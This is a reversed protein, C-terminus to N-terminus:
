FRGGLGLAGGGPLLVFRPGVGTLGVKSPPATSSALYDRWGSELPGDSFAHELGAATMAAGALGLGIFAPEFSITPEKSDRVLTLADIATVAGGLVVFTWGVVRRVLHERRARRAWEQEVDRRVRAPELEGHSAEISFSRLADYAGPYGFYLSGMTLPFGAIFLADALTGHHTAEAALMGGIALVGAGEAAWWAVRWGTEAGAREDLVRRLHGLMVGEEDGGAPGSADAPEGASSASRAARLADALDSAEDRALNGALFAVARVVAADGEPLQITRTVPPADRPRYTMVLAHEARDISVVFAGLARAAAPDGAAVATADLERGIAARLAVADVPSSAPDVDAVFVKAAAATAEDARATSAVGALLSLPVLVAPIRRWLTV